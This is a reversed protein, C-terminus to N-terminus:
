IIRWIRFIEWLLFLNTMGSALLNLVMTGRFNANKPQNWSRFAWVIFYVGVPLETLAFWLGAGFGQFQSFWLIFLGGAVAMLGGSLVFTGRVGLKLSITQDGRRADEEHQYIQTMPYVAWLFVASILVGLWLKGSTWPLPAALGQATAVFTLAGQVLGVGLWGSIPHRKFRIPPWSYAKSALTYLTLCLGFFVGVMFGAGLALVDLIWASVFLSRTVPPPIKLLGISHEDKDYWSNFAHSAPYLFIHIATFALVLRWFEVTPNVVLAFLFIPLLFFGFPLRWHLLTSRLDLKTM